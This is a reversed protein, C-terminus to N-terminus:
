VLSFTKASSFDWKLDQNQIRKYNTVITIRTRIRQRIHYFSFVNQCVVNILPPCRKPLSKKHFEHHLNTDPNNPFTPTKTMWFAMSFTLTEWKPRMHCGKYGSEMIVCHYCTMSNISITNWLCRVTWQM